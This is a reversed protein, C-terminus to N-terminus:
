TEKEVDPCRALGALTAKVIQNHLVDHTLEDFDCIAAGRLQTVEKVMRDLRLRGRPGALEDTFMKYGRYLGHRLLRRTGASLLKAFLNPLDPSRDIGTEGVGGGPFREWAYLFLYYINRIPITM